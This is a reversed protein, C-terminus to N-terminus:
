ESDYAGTIQLWSWGVGMGFAPRTIALCIHRIEVKANDGAAHPPPFASSKSKALHCHLTICCFCM